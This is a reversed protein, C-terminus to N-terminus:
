SGTQNTLRRFRCIEEKPSESKCDCIMVSAVSSMFLGYGSLFTTFVTASALIKWPCVAFALCNVIFQGRPITIYRPFIMSADSGFPIMSHATLLVTRPCVSCPLRVQRRHQHRPPEPGLHRGLLLRRHPHCAVLLPRPHRLASGLPELPRHGLLQQHRGHVPHRPLRVPHRRHPERDAPVVHLRVQDQEMPLHRAPEHHPHGLPNATTPLCVSLCFLCVTNGMGANIAYIIFWARSGDQTGDIVTSLNAKTNVMCFIFLGFIAPMIVIVKLWFFPRLQYPRFPTLCLHLLWFLFFALMRSSTIGMSEPIHNPIDSFGGGFICRLIIALFSSGSYVPNDPDPCVFCFLLPETFASVNSAMGQVRDTLRSDRAREDAQGRTKM